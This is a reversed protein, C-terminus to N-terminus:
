NSDAQLPGQKQKNPRERRPYKHPRPSVTHPCGCPAVRRTSASPPLPGLSLGDFHPIYTRSTLSNAASAATGLHRRSSTTTAPHVCTRARVRVFRVSTAVRQFRSLGLQARERHCVAHSVPPLSTSQLRLPRLVSQRNIPDVLHFKACCLVCGGCM